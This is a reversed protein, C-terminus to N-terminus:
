RRWAFQDKRAYVWRMVEEKSLTSGNPGEIRYIEAHKHFYLNLAKELAAEKSEIRCCARDQDLDDRYIVKWDSMGDGGPRTGVVADRRNNAQDVCGDV